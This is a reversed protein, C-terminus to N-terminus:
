GHPEGTDIDDGAVLEAQAVLDKAADLAWQALVMLRDYTDYGTQEILPVPMSDVRCSVTGDTRRYLSMTVLLSGPARDVPLQVVNGGETAM